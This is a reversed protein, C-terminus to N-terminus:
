QACDESHESIELGNPSLQLIPRYVTPLKVLVLTPRSNTDYTNTNKNTNTNTYTNTDYCLLVM